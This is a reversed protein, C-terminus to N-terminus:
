PVTSELVIEDDANRVCINRFALPSPARRPLAGISIRGAVDTVYTALAETNVCFTLEPSQGAAFLRFQLNGEQIAVSLVGIAATDAGTNSLVSNLEFSLTPSDHLRAFLVVEGNTTAVAITHVETLPSLAEALAKKRPLRRAKPSAPPALQLIVARGGPTTNFEAVSVLNTDDGFGALLQYPTSPDLRSVALRLRQLNVQGKKKVVAQVAGRADPDFGTAVLPASVSYQVSNASPAAFVTAGGPLVAVLALLAISRITM